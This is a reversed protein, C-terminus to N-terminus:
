QMTGWFAAWLSGTKSDEREERRQTEFFQELAELEGRDLWMGHGEPCGDILIQSCHAYEKRFMTKTCVPCAIAPLQKQQALNISANLMQLRTMTEPHVKEVLQQVQELEGQDLWIGGCTPCRDVTVDGEYKTAVLTAGDRPCQLVRPTTM